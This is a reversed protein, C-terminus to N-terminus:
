ALLWSPPFHESLNQVRMITLKGSFVSVYEISSPNDGTRSRKKLPNKKFTNEEDKEWILFGIVTKCWM